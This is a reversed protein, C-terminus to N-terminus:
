ERWEFKSLNAGVECWIRFAEERGLGLLLWRSGRLLIHPRIATAARAPSCRPKDSHSAIPCQQVRVLLAFFEDLLKISPEASM